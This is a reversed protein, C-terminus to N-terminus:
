LPAFSAAVTLINKNTFDLYKFYGAINETTFSYIPSLNNFNNLDIEKLNIKQKKENMYKIIM